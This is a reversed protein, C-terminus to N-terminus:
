SFKSRDIQNGPVPVLYEFSLAYKETVPKGKKLNLLLCDVSRMRRVMEAEGGLRGDPYIALSAGGGPAAKWASEMQKLHYYYSSGKPVLTGLRLRTAADMNLCWSFAALAFFFIGARMASKM